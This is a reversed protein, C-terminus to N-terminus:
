TTVEHDEAKIQHRVLFRYLVPLLVLTLFTSTILGGIVVTALPRQIEAGMSTSLAMPVFGLSAVLATMLVPRLRSLAGQRVVDELKELKHETPLGTLGDRLQEFVRVLVMANLVAIGSLAIFGVAASVSFNMDRLYLSLIGGTVALPISLFVTLALSVSAFTRYLILLIVVLILPIILMLRQRAEILNNFQGGWSVSYGEPLKLNKSVKERAEAVYSQIDRDELYIALAAYRQGYSHAINSFHDDMKLHALKALPLTGGGELGIPLAAISSQKGRLSEDMHVLIPIRFGQHYYDGVEAGALVGSVTQNVEPLSVGYSALRDYRIDLRLLPSKNLATLNDLEVNATGPIKQIIKRAEKNLRDLTELEPGTVRFSIDARSGELMENFRMEIPQTPSAETGPFRQEIKQRLYEYIEDKNRWKGEHDEPKENLILFLDAQNPSMPDTASEPTGLRSFAHQVEPLTGAWEEVVLENNTATQIGTNAPYNITLVLDGEDLTPIFDSGLRTFLFGTGLAFALTAGVLLVPLRLALELVPRYARVAGRFFLPESSDAQKPPRIVLVALAPMLVLAALLSAGLAFLVTIAMPQFMKGEVGSLSLIPIYVLMIIMLGLVVPPAVESASKKLIEMRESRTAGPKKNLHHVYNEILVVSGDVLLGFDIAGLSMLNASIGMPRIGLFAIVMSVPIALAVVLAARINGLILLLIIIVLGAGEALNVTFTKVTANVLNSRTYVINLDVDHPLSIEKIKQECDLAVQRSNAGSTMLATGLVVERGMWTASGLRQKGDFRVEAVDRVRVPNGFVSLKVPIDSLQKLSLARGSSRITIQKGDREIFGGGYSKGMSQIKDALENFTVGYAAMSKPYINIHVERTYGGNSDVDAVGKVKRLEPRIIYEQVDRLRLLQEKLPQKALGSGKKPTLVYMFIEGLGTTIAGMEAIIGEPLGNNVIALKESVQQRAWYIDTDDEFVVTVQSLGFKSISRVEEVKPIGNMEIEVPYTVTKEIQVPDMAGTRSNIMVQVGTIDPVADVPTHLMSWAGLGCLIAFALFSGRFQRASNYIIKTFM